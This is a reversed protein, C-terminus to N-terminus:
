QLLCPRRRNRRADGNRLAVEGRQLITFILPGRRSCARLDNIGPRASLVKGDTREPLMQEERCTDSGARVLTFQHPRRQPQTARTRCQMVRPIRTSVGKVAVAKARAVRGVAAAHVDSSLLPVDQNALRMRPKMWFPDRRAHCDSGINTLLILIVASVMRRRKMACGNSPMTAM